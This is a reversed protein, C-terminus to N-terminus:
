VKARCKYYDFGTLKTAQNLNFGKEGPVELMLTRIISCLVKQKNNRRM